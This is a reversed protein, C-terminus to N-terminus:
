RTLFPPCPPPAHPPPPPAIGAACQIVCWFPLSAGTVEVCNFVHIGFDPQKECRKMRQELISGKSWFPANKVSAKSWLNRTKSCEINDSGPSSFVQKRLTKALQSEIQDAWSCINALLRFNRIYFYSTNYQRPLSCRLRQDSKTDKNNVNIFAPKRVVHSM